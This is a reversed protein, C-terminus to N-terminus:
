QSCHAFLASPSTPLAANERYREEVTLTTTRLIRSRSHADWESHEPDVTATNSLDQPDFRANDQLEIDENRPQTRSLKSRLSGFSMYSKSEKPGKPREEPDYGFGSVHRRRLDGVQIFGTELSDLFPRLYVLCTTLISFCQVIQTCLTVPWIEFTLDSTAKIRNLYIIQCIVATVVSDWTLMSCFSRDTVAKGYM